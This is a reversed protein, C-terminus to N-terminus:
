IKKCGWQPYHKRIFANLEKEAKTYVRQSDEDLIEQVMAAALTQNSYKDILIFAGLAKNEDYKKLM